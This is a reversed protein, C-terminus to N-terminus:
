SVSILLGAISFGELAADQVRTIRVVGRKGEGDLITSDPGARLLAVGSLLEVTERYTGAGVRVTDGYSTM